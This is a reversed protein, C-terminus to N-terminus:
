GAAGLLWAALLGAAGAALLRPGYFRLAAVLTAAGLTRALWAHHADRVPPAAAAPARLPAVFRWCCTCHATSLIPCFDVEVEGHEDCRGRQAAPANM